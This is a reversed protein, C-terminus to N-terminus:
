KSGDVTLIDSRRLLDKGYMERGSLTEYYPKGGTNFKLDGAKHPVIIDDEKHTGDEDWQALVM